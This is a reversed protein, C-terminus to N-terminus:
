RKLQKSIEVALKMDDPRIHHSFVKVLRGDRGILYKTFSERPFRGEKERGLWQFTPQADEGRVRSVEFMPFSVRYYKRCEDLLAQEGVREREKFDTSPFGLVTFGKDRYRQYLAQLGDFQKEGKCYAPTNVILM